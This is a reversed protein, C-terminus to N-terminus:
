DESQQMCLSTCSVNRLKPFDGPVLIKAISPTLIASDVLRLHSFPDASDALVLTAGYSLTSFIEHISGDFAPSMIQSVKCGPEAFLRTELDKQFAVLGEHSCIVGKPKGTSGSTFCVYATASPNPSERRIVNAPPSAEESLLEDVAFCVNCSSPKFSKEPLGSSLFIKGGASQFNTDRVHSPLAADMASYVGGAKLIGYIAIIWNISRDAHVCVAEGPLIHQSLHNAVRSALEDFERYTLSKEGKEVAVSDPHEAVAREYLTVLDDKISSVSTNNSICNGFTSLQERTQKSLLKDMCMGITHTPDLLALLANRYHEGLVEIAPESYTRSHYCLRLTGDAGFFVSLPIETVTKFYNKGVPQVGDTATAAMEFEMALASSFQRTYGDEPLSFQFSSLEIMRHFIHRMYERTNTARNLSVHLPLTNILPGVTDEVGNLPLNRGSFVVGFVVADSDTYMSLALAWAAYYLSASSVGIERACASIQDVPLQLSVSKTLNSNSSPASSPPPLLLEGAASPHEAQQKQWFRQSATRSRQQLAKLDRAIGDFATGPQITRGAAAEQLKKYILSASFGDILAHHVRWIITSVSTESSREFTVVKFSTGVQTQPEEEDLESQYTTQDYVVKETWVFPAEDQVYLSGTGESFDFTTRFIPESEIVAKWAKKMVPLDESAYTEFFSIINTGPHKQSGHILSLQMETMPKIDEITQLLASTSLVSASPSRLAQLPRITSTAFTSTVEAELKQTGLVPRVQLLRKSPASPLKSCSISPMPAACDLLKSIMESRLISEVSLYLDQRKCALALAVASLSHGGLQTFSANLDLKPAPIDLVHCINSLVLDQMKALLTPHEM